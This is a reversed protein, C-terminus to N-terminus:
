TSTGAISSTYSSNVAAQGAVLPLKLWVGIAATAALDTGPVNTPTDAFVVGAPATQRNAATGADNQSAALGFLILGSPNAADSVQAALLANSGNTNKWFFKAYYDIEVVSSAPDKRFIASFGREGAPIARVATTHDSRRVTVTGTCTASLEASLVRQVTGLSGLPVATTGNLTVTQSVVRGQSDRGVVTMTQTTDGAASSVVELTDPAAPQTFDPRRLPDIAGGVPVGDVDSQTAAHYAVLDASAVSM